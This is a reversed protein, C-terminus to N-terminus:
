PDRRLRELKVDFARTWGACLPYGKPRGDPHLDPTYNGREDSPMETGDHAYHCRFEVCVEPDTQRLLAAWVEPDAREPSDPRFACDHCPEDRPFGKADEADQRERQRRQTAITRSFRGM